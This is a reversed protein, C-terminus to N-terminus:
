FSGDADQVFRKLHITLVCLSKSILMTKTADRVKVSGPKNVEEGDDKPDCDASELIKMSCTSAVHKTSGHSSTFGNSNLGAQIPFLDFAASGVLTGPGLGGASFIGFSLEM